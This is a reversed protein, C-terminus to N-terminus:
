PRTRENQKADFASAKARAALQSWDTCVSCCLLAADFLLYVAPLLHWTAELGSGLLFIVPTGVVWLCLWVCRASWDQIGLARNLGALMGFEADLVLFLAAWPWIAEREAMVGEEETFLATISAGFALVAGSYAVVIATGFGLALAATKKAAKIDGSGLHRGIVNCM